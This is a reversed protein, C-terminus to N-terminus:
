EPVLPKVLDQITIAEDESATDVEDSDSVSSTDSDSDVPRTVDQAPPWDSPLSFKLFCPTCKAYGQSNSAYDAPLLNGIRHSPPAWGCGVGKGSQTFLHM